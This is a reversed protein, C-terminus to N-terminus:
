DSLRRYDGSMFPQWNQGDGSVEMLFRYHGPRSFDFSVRQEGMASRYFLVITEGNTHGRFANAPSGMNDWWHMVYDGREGDHSLVAHGLYSVQGNRRQSYDQIMVLGDLAMRNEVLGRAQGGAPDWPSPYLTEDGEWRGAFRNLWRHQETLTPLNM